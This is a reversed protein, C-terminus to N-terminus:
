SVSEKVMDAFHNGWYEEFRLRRQDILDAMGLNGDAELPRADLKVPVIIVNGQRLVQMRLTVGAPTSRVLAMFVAVDAVPTEPHDVVSLVIDGDRFSRAGAFGSMRDVIIVGATLPLERGTKLDHFSAAIRDLHVGLFGAAPDSKYSEGSLFVQSVIQKIVISQIPDLPRSEEVVQQLAPLDDPTLSMLHSLATSRISPDTSTLDSFWDRISSAADATQSTSPQTAPASTPPEDAAHLPVLTAILLSAAALPAPGRFFKKAPKAM